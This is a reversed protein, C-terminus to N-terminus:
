RTHSYHLRIHILVLYKYSGNFKEFHVDVLDEVPDEGVGLVIRALMLLRL